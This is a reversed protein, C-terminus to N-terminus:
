EKGITVDYLSELMQATIHARRELRDDGVLTAQTELTALDCLLSTFSEKVIRISEMTDM